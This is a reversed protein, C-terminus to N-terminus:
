RARRPFGAPRRDARRVDAPKHARAGLAAALSVRDGGGRRVRDPRRGREAQVQVRPPSIEAHSERAGDRPVRRGTDAGRARDGRRDHVQLLLDLHGRGRGRLSTLHAEGGAPAERQGSGRHGSESRRRKFSWRGLRVRSARSRDDDRAGRRLHAAVVAPDHALADPEGDRSPSCRGGLPAAHLAPGADHRSPRITLRAFFVFEDCRLHELGCDRFRVCRTESSRAEIGFLSELTQPRFLKGICTFRAPGGAGGEKSRASARVTRDTARVAVMPRM